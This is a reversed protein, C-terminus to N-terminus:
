RASPISALHVGYPLGNGAPVVVSHSHDGDFSWWNGHCGALLFGSGASGVSISVASTTGVAVTLPNAASAGMIGAPWATTALTVNSNFGNSIVLSVTWSGTSGAQVAGAPTASLSFGPQAASNVTFTGLKLYIGSQYSTNTAQM